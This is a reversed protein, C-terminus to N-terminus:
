SVEAPSGALRELMEERVKGFAEQQNRAIPQALPPHFKLPNVPVGNKKLHFCLHPGTARGTQGVAGIVQGQRVRAGKKIGRAFRSLHCYATSYTGNHRIRVLNGSPGRPGAFSIIGDAVAHIPTGAPAAYDVSLHPVRRKLIPHFRSRSFGSSIRSYKLPAKLFQKRLSAGKPTFYDRERPFYIAIIPREQNTFQAGLIRGYKVFHNDRYKKELVLKVRDGKRIDKFFDIDWAFIEEIADVLTPREGMRIISNYLNDTITLEKIVTRTEYPIATIKVRYKGESKKLSVRQERDIEYSLGKLEKGQFRLEYRTGGAVRSINHVRKVSHIIQFIEPDSVGRGRLITYFNGGRPIKGRIYELDESKNENNGKRDGPVDTEERVNMERGQLLSKLLADEGSAPLVPAPGPLATNQFEPVSSATNSCFLPLSIIASLFVIGSIRFSSKGFSETM